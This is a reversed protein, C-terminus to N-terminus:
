TVRPLRLRNREVNDDGVEVDLYCDATAGELNAVQDSDDPDFSDLGFVKCFRIIDRRNRRYNESGEQPTMLWHSFLPAEAGDPGEIKITVVTMPNGGKSNKSETKVIRLPYTGAKVPKDEFQDGESVSIVPM